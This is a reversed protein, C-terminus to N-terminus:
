AAGPLKEGAEVAVDLVNDAPPLPCTAYATLACPLNVTRNLDVVVTGDPAPDDTRLIRGGGYTTSGNTADRFHLSLGGGKGALAVLRRPSGAVDFTVTGIATPFHQLGDVVAGVTIRQPTDYAEFRGTVVWRPDVPFHPVGDFAARTTARPDRVRLAYSDTRRALEVVREGVAVLVGPAGDVPSVSRTGDVPEGDVSVGDDASATIEVTGDGPARWTGPLDAIARPTEDLWELATLSLWGHPERLTAEREDHWRQWDAQLTRHDETVTM